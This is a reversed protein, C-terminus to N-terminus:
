TACDDFGIGIEFEFVIEELAGEEGWPEGICLEFLKNAWERGFLRPLVVAVLPIFWIELELEFWWEKSLEFEPDGGREEKLPVNKGDWQISHCTTAM